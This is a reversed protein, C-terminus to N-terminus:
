GSCCCRWAIPRALAKPAEQRAVKDGGGTGLGTARAIGAPDLIMIVSGDGLITNGSFMTIHRLIPAVTQRRNGRYRVGTWSLVWCSSGVQAVVIHARQDRGRVRRPGSSRGSIGLSAPPRAAAARPHRQDARDRKRGHHRPTTAPAGRASWNSSASSRSPSGTGSVAEVILPFRDGLPSFRIVVYRRDSRRRTESRGHRRDQRHGDPRRGM